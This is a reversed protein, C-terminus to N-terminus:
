HEWRSKGRSVVMLGDSSIDVTKVGNATALDFLLKNLFTLLTTKDHELHGSVYVM